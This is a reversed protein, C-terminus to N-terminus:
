GRGKALVAVLVVDGIVTPEEPEWELEAWVESLSRVHRAFQEEGTGGSAGVMEPPEEWRFDPDVLRCLAKVDGRSWAEYGRRILDAKDDSM